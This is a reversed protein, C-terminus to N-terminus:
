NELRLLLPINLSYLAIVCYNEAFSTPIYLPFHIAVWGYLLKIM